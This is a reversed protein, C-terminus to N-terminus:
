ACEKTLDKSVLLATIIWGGDRRTATAGVPSPGDNPVDTAKGNLKGNWDDEDLCALVTATDGSVSAEYDSISPKGVRKFKEDAYGDVRNIYAEVFSGDAVGTFAGTKVKASNESSVVVAWYKKYVAIAAAEDAAKPDVTSTATPKADGSSSDSGSCAALSVSLAVAALSALLVRKVGGLSFNV